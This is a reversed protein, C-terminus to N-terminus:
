TRAGRSLARPGHGHASRVGPIHHLPLAALTRERWPLCRQPQAPSARPRRRNALRFLEPKAQRGPCSPQRCVSEHRSHERSRDHRHSQRTRRVLSCGFGSGSPRAANQACASCRRGPVHADLHRHHPIKAQQVLLDSQTTWFAPDSVAVHLDIERTWGDPSEDRRLAADAAIVSLAISLLDWARAAPQLKRQQIIHRATAGVAGTDPIAAHGYLVIDLDGPVAGAFDHDEPACIIRM